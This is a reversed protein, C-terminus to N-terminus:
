TACCTPSSFSASSRSLGLADPADGFGALADTEHGLQSHVELEILITTLKGDGSIVNKRYLPNALARQAIERLTEDDEPWDELLEGVVLEDGVGRTERANLLSSVEVVLPVEDEIREHLSRLKELFSRDFLSEEKPEIAIIIFTDRGYQERFEDYLVRVPDDPHFFGELSADIAFHQLQTAIGVTVALCFALVWWARRYVFHGWRELLVEIRDHM